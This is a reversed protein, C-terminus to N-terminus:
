AGELPGVFWTSGHAEDAHMLQIARGSVPTNKFKRIYGSFRATSFGGSKDAFHGLASRLDADEGFKRKLEKITFPTEPLAALVEALATKEPDEARMEAINGRPDEMKLWILASRVIGSWDEFSGMPSAPSPKGAVLYARVIVLAATVLESRKRMALDLADFSFPREDPREVKADLRIRITRRNLDGFIQLNNGTCCILTTSPIIQSESKGLVRVQTEASTLMQCLQDSRLVHSVNDIAIVADGAIAAAGIRKELEAEDPTPTIVSAPRGTTLISAIDVTLSKGTGASPATVAFMPASKLIPRIVATILLAVAASRDSGDVFPLQNIPELLVDIADLANKYSPSEQVTPWLRNSLFLLGSSLDYGSTNLVTGDDRLCPAQIIARLRPITWGAGRRALVMRAVEAPCNIEVDENSRANWKLFTAHRTLVDVLSDADVRGVIISGDPRLSNGEVSANVSLTKTPAAYEVPRVLVDGRAFIGIAPNSLVAIADDVAKHVDGQKIKILPKPPGSRGVSFDDIPKRGIGNSSPDSRINSVVPRAGLSTETTNATGDYRGEAQPLTRENADAKHVTTSKQFDNRPNDGTAFVFDTM